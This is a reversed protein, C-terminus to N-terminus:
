RIPGLATAMALSGDPEVELGEIGECRVAIGEVDAGPGLLLDYELRGEEERIRLDVGERLGRYLVSAYAPVEARWKAPDDGLFFNWIGPLREEGEIAVSERAGEFVLGVVVGAIEGEEERRTLRLTVRDRGLWATMGRKRAVYKAQADWQGRNEVFALPLRAM